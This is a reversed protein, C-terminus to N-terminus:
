KPLTVQIGNDSVTAEAFGIRKLEICLEHWSAKAPLVGAPILVVSKGAAAAENCIGNLRLFNKDVWEFAVMSYDILDVDGDTEEPPSTDEEDDPPQEEPADHKVTKYLLGRFQLNHAQVAAKKFGGANSLLITLPM